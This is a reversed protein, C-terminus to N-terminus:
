VTVAQPELGAISYAFSTVQDLQHTWMGRRRFSREIADALQIVKADSVYVDADDDEPGTRRSFTRRYVLATLAADRMDRWKPPECLGKTAAALHRARRLWRMTVNTPRGDVTIADERSTLKPTLWIVAMTLIVLGLMLSLEPMPLWEAGALGPGHGGAAAAEGGAESGPVQFLKLQALGIVIPLARQNDADSLFLFARTGHADLAVKTIFMQVM